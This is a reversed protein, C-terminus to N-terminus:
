GVVLDSTVTVPQEINFRNVSTKIVQEHLEQFQEPTGDGAIHVTYHVAGYGPKVSADLDLYGRLDLEGSTDIELSELRIGMVAAVTVYGMMMCSNLAAFLLEQPNPFANTGLLEPPEDVSITFDRPHTEGGMTFSSVRTDGRTGGKWATRVGFSVMGKASDQKVEGVLQEVSAVDIGNINTNQTTTM